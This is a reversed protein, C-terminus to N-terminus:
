TKNLEEVVFADEGKPDTETRKRLVKLKEEAGNLQRQLYGVLLVGREYANMAQDLPLSGEEVKEVLEELLRLGQEFSLTKLDLKEVSLLDGLNLGKKM